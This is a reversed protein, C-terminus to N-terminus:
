FPTYIYIYRLNIHYIAVVVSQIVQVHHTCNMFPIKLGYTNQSMYLNSIIIEFVIELSVLNKYHSILPAKNQENKMASPEACLASSTDRICLWRDELREFNLRQKCNIETKTLFLNRILSDLCCLLFHRTLICTPQSGYFTQKESKHLM